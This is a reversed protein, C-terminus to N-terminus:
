AKEIVIQWIGEEVEIIESNYGYKSKFHNTVSSISCSHDTELIVRDNASVQELKKEAKIIPIPCMEGLADIFHDM